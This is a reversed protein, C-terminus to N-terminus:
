CRKRTPGMTRAETLTHVWRAAWPHLQEIQAPAARPAVTSEVSDSVVLSESLAVVAGDDFQPVGTRVTSMALPCGTRRSIALRFREAVLDLQALASAVEDPRRLGDAHVRLM